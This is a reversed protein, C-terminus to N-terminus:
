LFHLPQDPPGQHREQHGDPTKLFYAPGPAPPTNGLLAKRQGNTIQHAKCLRQFKRKAAAVRVSCLVKCLPQFSATAAM